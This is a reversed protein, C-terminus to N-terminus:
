SKLPLASQQKKKKKKERVNHSWDDLYVRVSVFPLCFMLILAMGLGFPGSRAAGAGAHSM